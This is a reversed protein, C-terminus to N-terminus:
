GKAFPCVSRAKCYRHCFIPKSQRIEFKHPQTLCWQNVEDYTDGVKTPTKNKGKYAEWRIGRQKDSCPREYQEPKDFVPYSLHKQVQNRIYNDQKEFDWLDLKIYEYPIQPYDKWHINSQKWDRYWVDVGLEEVIDGRSRRQQAYCNGSWVAKGNRRVLMIHYKPLSVDYVYDAYEIINPKGIYDFDKAPFRSITFGDRGKIKSSNSCEGSKFIIEQLDDAMQKSYTTIQWGNRNISGDGKCYADLFIKLYYRKLNKIFIPIFKDKSGGFQEVYKYIRVDNFGIGVKTLHHKIDMRNLLNCITERYPSKSNQSIGLRYGGGTKHKVYYGESLYWGMFEVFDKMKVIKKNKYRPKNFPVYVGDFSFWLPNEKRHWKGDKKFKIRGYKIDNAPTLWYNKAIHPKWYMNHDPTVCLDIQPSKYHYLHGKYKKKQYAIPKQYFTRQTQPNLSYILDDKILDKFYKWGNNTLVETDKDYCNMQKTWKSIRYKPGYVGTQKVELLLPELYNDAKGVVIVGDVIDEFKHEVDDDDTACDEYRSHLAIGQVMTLLDSYDRVIDDWHNIFLIRPLPDDILDTISLRNLEPRREKYKGKLVRIVRDPLNHNNTWKV